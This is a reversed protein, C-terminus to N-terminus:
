RPPILDETTWLTRGDVNAEAWARAADDDEFPGIVERIAGEHHESGRFRTVVLAQPETRTASMRHGEDNRIRHSSVSTLM